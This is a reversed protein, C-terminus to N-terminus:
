VKRLNEISQRLEACSWTLEHFHFTTGATPVIAETGQEMTRSLNTPGQYGDCGQQTRVLPNAMHVFPFIRALPIAHPHRRAGKSAPQPPEPVGGENTVTLTDLGEAVTTAPVEICNTAVTVLSGTLRPTVQVIVHEAAVEAQPLTEGVMVALPVLM